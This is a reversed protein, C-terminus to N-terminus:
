IHKWNRGSKIEYIASQGVNYKTAIDYIKSIKLEERISIVQAETLKAKIHEEGKLGVKLSLKFAHKINESQTAWELNEVRNDDKVGNIHNVQPKNEPNLIFAIAVLRHIKLNEYKGEKYLSVLHYGDKDYYAKRYKDVFNYERGNSRVVRRALSKVRGFNSVQYYGEYGEIDKWIEEM